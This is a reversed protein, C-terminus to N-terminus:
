ISLLMGSRVYACVPTLLLCFQKSREDRKQLYCQDGNSNLMQLSEEVTNWVALFVQVRARLFTESGLVVGFGWKLLVTM